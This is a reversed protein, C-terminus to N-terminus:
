PADNDTKRRKGHPATDAQIAAEAACLLPELVHEPIMLEQLRHRPDKNVHEKWSKTSAIITYRLDHTPLRQRCLSDFEGNVVKAGVAEMRAQYKKLVDLQLLFNDNLDIPTSLLALLAKERVDYAIRAKEARAQQEKEERKQQQEREWAEAQLRKQEKDAKAQEYKQREEEQQQRRVTAAAEKALRAKELRAQRREEREEEERALEEAMQRAREVEARVEADVRDFEEAGLVDICKQRDEDTLPTNDQASKIMAKRANDQAFRRRMFRVSVLEALFENDRKTQQHQETQRQQKVYLLTTEERLKEEAEWQERQEKAWRQLSDLQFRQTWEAEHQQMFLKCQAAHEDIAAISPDIPRKPMGAYFRRVESLLFDQMRAHLQILVKPAHDILRAEPFVMYAPPDGVNNDNITATPPEPATDVENGVAAERRKAERVAAELAKRDLKRKEEDLHDRWTTFTEKDWKYRAPKPQNKPNHWQWCSQRIKERTVPDSRQVADWSWLTWAKEKWDVKDQKVM